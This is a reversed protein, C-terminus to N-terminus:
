LPYADQVLYRAKYKVLFFGSIFLGSIEAMPISLWVGSLGLFRPLILVFGLTFVFCNFIAVAASVKGNGVATFFGSVLITFGNFLFVFAFFVMGQGALQIVASDKSFIHIIPPPAFRALAFILISAIAATILTQQGLQRIKTFNKQGFNVSIVPAVGMSLGMHGASLLFYLNILIAMAGVGAEGAYRIIVLNFVLMKVGSSLETVMESSGNGMAKAIFKLDLVPRALMLYRSRFCFYLSGILIAVGIGCSSAIGAGQVGMGLKAILIYDLSVNTLGSALTILFAWMPKGDLRIFFEFFVQLVIASIGFSFSRLYDASIDVLAPSAGCIRAIREPDAGWIGFFLILMLISLFCFVLTFHQLAEKIRNEGLEIGVMASAGAAMMIGLAFSFNLLPMIINVGALAMPGAFRSVFIMDVTMYLSITIISMVSPLIFKIFDM